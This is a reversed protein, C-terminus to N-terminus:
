LSFGAEAPRGRAGGFGGSPSQWPAEGRPGNRLEVKKAGVPARPAGELEPVLRFQQAVAPAAAWAGLEFRGGASVGGFAADLFALAQADTANAIPPVPFAAAPRPPPPPALAARRPPAARRRRRDSRAGFDWVTTNGLVPDDALPGGPLAQFSCGGAQAGAAGAAALLAALALRPSAIM